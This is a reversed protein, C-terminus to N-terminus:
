AAVETGPLASAAPKLVGPKRVMTQERRASAQVYGDEVLGAKALAQLLELYVDWELEHDIYLHFHGPTTSPILQAPLDLDIVPAHKGSTTLSSVLTADEYSARQRVESGELYEDPDADLRDSTWYTREISM